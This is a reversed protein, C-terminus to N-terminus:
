QAIEGEVRGRRSCWPCSVESKEPHWCAVGSCNGCKFLGPRECHPCRPYSPSLAFKGEIQRRDYGERRALDSSIPFAWTGTWVDNMVEFRVGFDAKSIMCRAMVIAIRRTVDSM